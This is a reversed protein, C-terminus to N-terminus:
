IAAFHWCNTFSRFLVRLMRDSPLGAARNEALKEMGAGPEPHGEPEAGIAADCDGFTM